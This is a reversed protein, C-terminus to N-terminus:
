QKLLDNFEEETLIRVGKEHALRLKKDNPRIGTLLLTTQANVASQVTAGM